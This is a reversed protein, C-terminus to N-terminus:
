SSRNSSRNKSKGSIRREQSIRKEVQRIDGEVDKDDEPSYVEKDGVVEEGEESESSHSVM